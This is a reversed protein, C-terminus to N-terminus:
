TMLYGSDGWKLRIYEGLDSGWNNATRTIASKSKEDKRLNVFSKYALNVLEELMNIRQDSYDLEQGFKEKASRSAYDAAAKM